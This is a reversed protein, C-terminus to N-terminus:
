AEQEEYFKCTELDKKNITTGRLNLDGRIPNLHFLLGLNQRKNHNLKRPNLDSDTYSTIKVIKYGNNNYLINDGFQFLYPQMYGSIGKDDVCVLVENTNNFTIKKFKEKEYIRVCYVYQCDHINGAIVRDNQTAEMLDLYIESIVGLLKHKSVGVRNVAVLTGVDLM